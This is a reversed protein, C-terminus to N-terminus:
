TNNSYYLYQTVFLSVVFYRHFCKLQNNTIYFYRMVFYGLLIRINSFVYRIGIPVIIFPFFFLINYDNIKIVLATESRGLIRASTMLKSKVTITFHPLLGCIWLRCSGLNLYIEYLRREHEALINKSPIETMFERSPRGFTRWIKFLISQLSVCYVLINVLCM